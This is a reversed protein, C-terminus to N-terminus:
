SLMAAKEETVATPVAARFTSKVDFVSADGAAAAPSLPSLPKM